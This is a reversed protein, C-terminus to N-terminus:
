RKSSPRRPGAAAPNGVWAPLGRREDLDARHWKKSRPVTEVGWPCPVAAVTPDSSCANRVVM